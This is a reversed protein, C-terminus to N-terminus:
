RGESDVLARVQTRMRADCAQLARRQTAGAQPHRQRASAACANFATAIAKVAADHADDDRSPAAEDPSKYQELAANGALVDPVTNYFEQAQAPGAALLAAGLGACVLGARRLTTGSMDIPM